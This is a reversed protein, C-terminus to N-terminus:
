GAGALQENLRALHLAFQADVPTMPARLEAQLLGAGALLSKLPAPNPQAFLAEVMPVLKLWLARAQAQQGTRLLEIMQVFRATHVHASATIAGAAGQAVLSFLQLDEGALVQLRGDAILALAKGLDGSCDKVAVVRPHAALALLTDRHIQVGTRYPIDYVVVALASADAIATFWQLLGQQSPRIYNPAPVLLGALPRAGLKEVWALMQPLHYGSVGMLVPLGDANALVTDLVALQEEKDLAAAEGTSGCAVFGAVGDNRLRVVLAKLAEHDIRNDHFPTVLPIWLGRLDPLRSM